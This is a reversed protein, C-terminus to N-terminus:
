IMEEDNQMKWTCAIGLLELGRQFKSKNEPILNYKLTLEQGLRVMDDKDGSYLEIELETIPLSARDTVIEGIDLSVVSISNGTDVAMQKRMCNINMIPKLTKDGVADRLQDYLESGEFIDINPAKLYSAEVPVNLEGRIHLGDKAAGGWKLAAVPKENEMRVRFAIKRSCLDFDETDFYTAQLCLEEETGDEKIEALHKDRLIREQALKNDILFKLEVEM